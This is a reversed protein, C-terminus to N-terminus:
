FLYFDDHLDGGSFSGTFFPNAGSNKLPDYKPPTVNSSLFSNNQNYIKGLVCLDYLTRKPIKELARSVFLHVYPEPPLTSAKLM